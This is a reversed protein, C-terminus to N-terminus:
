LDRAMVTRRGNERAREIARHIMKVCEENLKDAFDSSISMTDVFERIKSRIIVNEM